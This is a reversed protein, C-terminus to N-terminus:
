LLADHEGGDRLSTVLKKIEEARDKPCILTVADTQVVVLDSLGIVATLRDGADHAVIVNNNAELLQAQGIVANGEDDHPVHRGVEPWSGVDSWAFLGEAMVINDAREMLAYDISIRELPEFEAALAAAFDDTDVVPTLATILGHLAPAHQAFAADLTEVSWVFMGSNWSFRGSEIYTAATAADPKEVFRQVKRFVVERPPEAGSGATASGNSAAGGAPDRHIPDSAEIYGYATSPQTPRIGITVLVQEAQALEFGEALTQRFVDLDGIVHDATLVCFVGNPDRAKVVACALAVAAATDRRMPEGIVNEPLLGPSREITPAVLDESTLVLVRDAPILGDLRDVAMELMTREGLLNLLQKPRKMTSAPWFREGYGGALIVAYAHQLM